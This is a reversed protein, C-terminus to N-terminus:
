YFRIAAEILAIAEPSHWEAPAPLRGIERGNRDYLVTMPLGIAGVQTMSTFSGDHILPLADLELREFFERAEDIRRDLSVTVVQFDEGGLDEQLANLAPMEEVCPACWTAWFNVLIIQGRYDALSTEDGDGTAFTTAPQAPADALVQFGRMEGRAYSDLSNTSTSQTSAMFVYVVAVFGIALLGLIGAKIPSVNM